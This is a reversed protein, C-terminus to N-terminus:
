LWREMAKADWTIESDDDKVCGMTFGCLQSYMTVAIQYKGDECPRGEFRHYVVQGSSCIYPGQWGEPMKM